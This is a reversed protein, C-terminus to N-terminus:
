LNNYRKNIVQISFGIIDGLTFDKREHVSSKQKPQQQFKQIRQQAKKQINRVIEDYDIEDKKQQKDNENKVIPKNQEKGKGKKKKKHENNQQLKRQQPIMPQPIFYFQQQKDFMYMQQQYVFQDTEVNKDRWEVAEKLVELPVGHVFKNVNMEVSSNCDVIVDV